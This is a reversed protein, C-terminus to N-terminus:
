EKLCPDVDKKLEILRTEESTLLRPMVLLTQEDLPVLQSFQGNPTIETPCMGLGPVYLQCSAQERREDTGCVMMTSGLGALGAVRSSIPDSLIAELASWTDGQLFSISGNEFGLVTGLGPVNALATTREVSQVELSGNRWHVAANPADPGINIAVLEDTGVWVLTPVFSRNLLRAPGLDFLREWREDRYRWLMRSDTVAFLEFPVSNHTPGALHVTSNFDLRELEPALTELSRGSWLQGEGDVLWLAGDPTQYGSFFIAPSSVHRVSGPAAIIALKASYRFGVIVEGSSTPLAFSVDSLPNTLSDPVFLGVEDLHSTYRSCTSPVDLRKLAAHIAASALSPEDERWPGAKGERVSLVHVRKPELKPDIARDVFELTQAGPVLGWVQLPCRMELVALDFDQEGETYEDLLALRRPASRDIAVMQTNLEDAPFM